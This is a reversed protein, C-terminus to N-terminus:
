VRLLVVAGDKEVPQGVNVALLLLCVQRHLGVLQHDGHAPFVGLAPVLALHIGVAIGLLVILCGLDGLLRRQGHGLVLGDLQHQGALKGVAALRFLPDLQGLRLEMAVGTVAFDSRTDPM